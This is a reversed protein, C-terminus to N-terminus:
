SNLSDRRDGRVCIARCLAEFALGPNDYVSNLFSDANNSSLSTYVRIRADDSAAM